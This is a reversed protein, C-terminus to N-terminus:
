IAGSGSAMSATVAVDDNTVIHFELISFMLLIPLFHPFFKDPVRPRVRQTLPGNM